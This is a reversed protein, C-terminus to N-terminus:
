FIQTFFDALASYLEEASNEKSTTTKKSEDINLSTKLFDEMTETIEEVKNSFKVEGAGGEPARWSFGNFYPNSNSQKIEDRWKKWDKLTKLNPDEHIDIKVAKADEKSLTSKYITKDVSLLSNYENILGKLQTYTKQIERDLADRRNKKNEVESACKSTCAVLDNVNEYEKGCIPCKYSM